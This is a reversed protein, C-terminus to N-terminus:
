NSSSKTQRAVRFRRVQQMADSLSISSPQGALAHQVHGRVSAFLNRSQPSPLCKPNYYRAAESM